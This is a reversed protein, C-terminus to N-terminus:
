HVLISNNKLWQEIAEVAVTALNEQSLTGDLVIVDTRNAYIEEFGQAVNRLFDQKEFASLRGRARARDLATEVPVRVFITVHPVVTTMAWSNVLKLMGIDLGRGYGQYALSSDSLRDSLILTGHALAPVILESFHQARDAAFLLYEAAPTIPMDQTQVIERIKKGLTTDGPEKTLLVDFQKKQLLAFLNQALTSKGSGDIGEIAILIGRTLQQQAMIEAACFLVLLIISHRKM